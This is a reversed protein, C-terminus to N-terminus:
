GDKSIASNGNMVVKPPHPVIVLTGDDITGICVLDYDGPHTVEQSLMNRFARGAVGNNVAEFLPGYSEAVKDHIKYLNM